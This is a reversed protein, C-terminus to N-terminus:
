FAYTLKGYYYGGNIGFPSFAPYRGTYSQSNASLYDQKAAANVGDPYENFLNNAGVSVTVGDLVEYGIDLDTILTPSIRNQYYIAGTRTQFNSSEGYYSEKLNITLAGLTWLASAVIRFEPATTELDSIAAKDFLAVGAALQSPAPAIRTVKTDTYNAALSWDVDGLDGFDTAYSALLDIGRTRTDLGNSFIRIGTQTVTSDLTNGNALIAARVAPSNIAGGTGFLQGSVVIRDDIEIQYADATFTLDPVPHAVFGASFNRSKEPSLGNIGILQAAAANPPLQVFASTPSVNTASYFSEALTPARFGSSATGRIAFADNFDYRATLKAVTTDGFDSFDEFRLAADVQLATFPEVAVNAYVAKSNRGHDGADTLSFGPYSQSGSKYRSAEDGAVIEYTDERYEAGLALTLPSALGVDFEHRLDLNTTWQSGLFNGARFDRPSFGNTTATSTDIYLDRNFSNRVFIEHEDRGYTSSLDITWGAVAGTGGVTIAYDNEDTGLQPSFGLPRPRVGNLGTVLNPVRYNEYAQAFKHGWTGSSYLQFDESVDVGFNYALTYLRYEADGAIRNLYPYDPLNQVQPYNALRAAAATNYATNQVRPDIDGRFSFDHYKAEATLNLFSNASPALGVNASIEGNRGGGDFYEGGSLSIQGGESANKQIINIVGAIADSGYQAAAGELLVEIHDVSGLPIFNLDAGAGGQYPGGTVALNATGHRRKGNVLVLAHNPSVGRLKAQLTLNSADGGFAQANFSPVTLALIQTLGVQGARDLIDEGLVTVPAPSDAASLGTTRTGTVIVIDRSINQEDAVEVAPGGSPLTEQASASSGGALAAGLLASGVFQSYKLQSKM